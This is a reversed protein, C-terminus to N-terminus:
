QFAAQNGYNSQQINIDIPAYKQFLAQASFKIEVARV